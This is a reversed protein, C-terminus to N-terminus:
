KFYQITIATTAIGAPTGGTPAVGTFHMTTGPQITPTAGMTVAPSLSADIATTAFGGSLAYLDTNGSIGVYCYGPTTDTTFAETTDYVTIARVRGRFGPPSVVVETWGAGYDKAPLVYTVDYPADQLEPLVLPPIADVLDTLNGM